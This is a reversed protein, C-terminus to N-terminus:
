GSRRRPATLTGAIRASSRARIRVDPRERNPGAHARQDVVLLRSQRPALHRPRLCWQRGGVVIMWGGRDGGSPLDIAGERQRDEGDREGRHQPDHGLTRTVHQTGVVEPQLTEDVDPAVVAVARGPDRLVQEETPPRQVEEEVDDPQGPSCTDQDGGSQAVGRCGDGDDEADGEAAADAPWELRAGGEREHQDDRERSREPRGRQEDRVATRELEAEAEEDDSPKGVRRTDGPERRRRTEPDAGAEREQPQGVREGQVEHAPDHHHERRELQAVRRCTRSRADQEQEDADGREHRSHRTEDQREHADLRLRQGTSHQDAIEVTQHM